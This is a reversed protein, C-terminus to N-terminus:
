LMYAEVAQQPSLKVKKIEAYHEYKVPILGVSRWPRKRPIAKIKIHLHQEYRVPFV